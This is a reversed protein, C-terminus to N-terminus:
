PFFPDTLLDSTFNYKMKKELTRIQDVKNIFIYAYYLLPMYVQVYMYIIYGNTHIHTSIYFLHKIKMANQM